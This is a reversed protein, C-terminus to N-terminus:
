AMEPSTAGTAGAAERAAAGSAAGGGAARAAAREAAVAADAEEEAIAAICEDVAEERVRREEEEYEKLKETVLEKSLSLILKRLPVWYASHLGKFDDASRQFKGHIAYELTSSKPWQLMNGRMEHEPPGM